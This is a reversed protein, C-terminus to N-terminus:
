RLGWRRRLIWESSLLAVIAVYALLAGLVRLAVRRGEAAGLWLGLVVAVDALLALANWYGVPEQLRAIREVDGGGQALFHAIGALGDDDVTHAVALAIAVM